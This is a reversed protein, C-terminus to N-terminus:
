LKKCMKYHPIKIELFEDSSISYGLKLYFDVATKRANLVMSTYGHQKSYEEAFCVMKSGIKLQRLTEIVAVQRMKVEDSKLETLLLVGVLQKEVFAGIHISKKDADLNEDYLNMGLPQRLVKDRLELEQQYEVSGYKLERVELKDM